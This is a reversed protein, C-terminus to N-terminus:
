SSPLLITERVVGSSDKISWLPGDTTDEREATDGVLMRALITELEPHSALFVSKGISNIVSSSAHGNQVIIGSDEDTPPKDFEIRRPTEKGSLIDGLVCIIQKEM